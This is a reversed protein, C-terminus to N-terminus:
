YYCRHRNYHQDTEKDYETKLQETGISALSLSYFGVPYMPMDIRAEFKMIIYSYGM